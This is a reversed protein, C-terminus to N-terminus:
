PSATEVPMVISTPHAANSLIEVTGGLSDLMGPLPPLAHPVDFPALTVRLSHGPQIVFSTPFVEVSLLMPEGAPVPLLAERTFPHWPQISIGNLMRGKSADIARHSASLLGNSLGRSSGDPAVDSIAVSVLAEPSDAVIWVDAQIPGNVTMAQEFPASTYELTLPSAEDLQNNTTCPSNDFSGRGLWQNTSRTCLGTLPVQVYRRSGGDVAPASRSLSADAGLFWREARLHKLPWGAAGRYEEVGRYYQTVKPICETGTPLGKLAHDMWQIRLANLTPVRGYPLNKGASTHAWPGILLRADVNRALHEYLMPQGRQFLDDLGGVIFTPVQIRDVVEIPSRTRWFPGDYAVDGGIAGDALTNLQFDAAGLVHSALRDPETTGALSLATSLGLWAPTFATNFQGGGFTNDRYTDGAPVTGFVAKVSPHRSAAALLATIASYSTGTLGIDGNSWPQAAIWGLLEPYDAQAREDFAAWDGGSNGTGRDDVIVLAYGQLALGANELTAVAGSKGYGTISVITPFPGELGAPMHVDLAIEVGDSMPVKLNSLTTEATAIPAPAYEPFPESCSAAIPREPSGPKSLAGPDSSCAGLIVALTAAAGVVIRSM